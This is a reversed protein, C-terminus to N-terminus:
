LLSPSFLPLSILSLLSLVKAARTAVGGVRSSKKKWGKKKESRRLEWFIRGGWVVGVCVLGPAAVDVGDLGQEGRPGRDVEGICFAAPLLSLSLTKRGEKMKNLPTRPRLKKEIRERERM